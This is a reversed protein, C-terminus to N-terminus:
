FCFHSIQKLKKQKKRNRVPVLSPTSFKKKPLTWAIMRWTENPAFSQSKIQQNSSSSFIAITRINTEQLSLTTYSLRLLQRLLFEFLFTFLVIHTKKLNQRAFLQRIKPHTQLPSCLFFSSLYFSFITSSTNQKKTKKLRPLRQLARSHQVLLASRQEAGSGDAHREAVRAGIDFFPGVGDLHRIRNHM